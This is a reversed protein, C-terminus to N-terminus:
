PQTKGDMRQEVVHRRSDLLVQGTLPHQASRMVPLELFFRPDEFTVITAANEDPDDSPARQPDGPASVTVIPMPSWDLYARGLPSAAAALVAPTQAPKPHVDQAPEVHGSRTDVDALQYFDGYDAVIHWQFLSLPDPNALVRLPQGYRPLVGQDPDGAEVARSQAMGLAVAKGHEYFRATWWAAVLTLSAVAWGRGRFASKKAGVESGILRFLPPLVFALLLLGFLVPDFIFVFSGAYWRPNVPSFPRLGYNNTFDLFLHSLLAVLAFVYLTGWRVPAKTLPRGDGRDAARKVRFQHVAWACGVLLAAELPIGFVTHTIGRHHQFGPVPGRLFGWLTDVDPFEAAVAM